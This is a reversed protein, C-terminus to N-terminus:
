GLLFIDRTRPMPMPWLDLSLMLRPVSVQHLRAGGEPFVLPRQGLWLLCRPLASLLSWLLSSLLLPLLLSLLSLLTFFLLFVFPAPPRRGGECLPRAAM